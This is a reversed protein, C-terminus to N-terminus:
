EVTKKIENSLDDLDANEDMIPEAIVEADEVDKKTQKPEM